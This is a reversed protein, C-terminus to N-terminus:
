LGLGSSRASPCGDSSLNSRHSSPAKSFASRPSSICEVGKSPDPSSCNGLAAVQRQVEMIKRYIEEARPTLIARPSKIPLPLKPVMPPRVPESVFNINGPSTSLQTFQSNEPVVGRHQKHYSLSPSNTDSKLKSQLYSAGGTSGYSEPLESASQFMKMDPAKAGSMKSYAERAKGMHEDFTNAADTNNEAGEPDKNRSNNAGGSGNNTSFEMEGVISMTVEQAEDAYETFIPSQSRPRMQRQDSSSGPYQRQRKQEQNHKHKLQAKVLSIRKELAEVEELSMQSLENMPPVARPEHDPFDDFARDADERVAYGDRRLKLQTHMMPAGRGGASPPSPDEPDGRSSNSGRSVSRRAMGHKNSSDWSSSRLRRKAMSSSKNPTQGGGAQRGRSNGKGASIKQSSSGKSSPYHRTLPSKSSRRVPKSNNSGGTPTSKHRSSRRQSDKVASMSKLVVDTDSGHNDDESAGGQLYELDRSTPDQRKDSETTHLPSKSSSRRSSRRVGRGGAGLSGRQGSSSPYNLYHNMKPQDGYSQPGRVAKAFDFSSRLPSASSTAVSFGKKGKGSKSDADKEVGSASSAGSGRLYSSMAPKNFASHRSRSVGLADATRHPSKRGSRYGHGPPVPSTRPTPSTRPSKARMSAMHPSPSRSNVGRCPSTRPSNRPSKATRQSNPTANAGTGKRSTPSTQSRRRSAKEGSSGAKGAGHETWTSLAQQQQQQQTSLPPWEDIDDVVDERDSGLLHSENWSGSSYAAGGGANNADSSIRESNIHWVEIDHDGRIPERSNSGKARSLKSRTNDM